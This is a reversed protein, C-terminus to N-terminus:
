RVAAHRLEPTCSLGWHVSVVACIPAIEDRITGFRRSHNASRDFSFNRAAVYDNSSTLSPKIGAVAAYESPAFSASRGSITSSSSM